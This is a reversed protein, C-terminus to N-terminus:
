DRRDKVELGQRALYEAVINDVFVYQKWQGVVVEVQYYDNGKKSKALILSLQPKVNEAM